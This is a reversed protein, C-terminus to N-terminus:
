FSKGGRRVSNIENHRAIAKARKKSRDRGSEWGCLAAGAGGIIFGVFVGVTSAFVVRVVGWAIKSSDANPEVNFGDVVEKIGGVFMVWVGVYVGVAIGTLILLVGLIFKVTRM